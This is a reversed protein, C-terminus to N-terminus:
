WLILVRKILNKNLSIQFIVIGVVDILYKLYM